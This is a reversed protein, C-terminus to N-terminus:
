PFPQSDIAAGAPDLRIAVVRSSPSSYDIWALFFGLSTAVIRANVNSAVKTSRVVAFNSDLITSYTDFPYGAANLPVRTLVVTTGSNTALDLLRGTAVRMSSAHGDGDIAALWAGDPDNSTVSRSTWGALFGTGRSVVRVPNDEYLSSSTLAIGIPDLVNGSADIRTFFVDPFTSRYDVWLALAMSGNSAIDAHFVEQSPADTPSTLPQEPSLTRTSAAALPDLALACVAALVFRM